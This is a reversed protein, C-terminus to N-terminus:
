HAGVSKTIVRDTPTQKGDQEVYSTEKFVVRASSLDSPDSEIRLIEGNYCRAGRREFFTTGSPQARVFVGAGEDDSFTGVVSLESVLYQGLPNPDAAGTSHAQALKQRFQARRTDLSPFGVARSIRAAATGAKVVVVRKFPDRGASKYPQISDATPGKLAERVNVPQAQDAPKTQASPAPTQGALAVTAYPAASLSALAALAMPLIKALGIKMSM